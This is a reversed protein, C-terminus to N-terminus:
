LKRLLIKEIYLYIILNERLGYFEEQYNESDFNDKLEPNDTVIVQANKLKAIDNYSINKYKILYYPIPFPSNKMDFSISAEPNQTKIQEIRSLFNKLDGVTHVYIFPNRPDMAFRQTALISSNTKIHLTLVLVIFSLCKIAKNKHLIGVSFAYGFLVCMPMILSLLLWPTKYSILSLILFYIVCFSSIYNIIKERKIYGILAGLLAFITIAFEGFYVGQSKQFFLIKTYYLFEKSHIESQSKEFFHLYSAIGDVIGKPNTGFSSYLTIYVLLALAFSIGAKKALSYNLKLKSKYALIISPILLAFLVIVFTEKSSQALGCALGLAIFDGLKQRTIALYLYSMALFVFLCFFIEQVFYLSYLISLASVSWGAIAISICAFNVQSKLAFFALISLLFIPLLTKRLSSIEHNPSRFLSETKKIFYAWYYLIGGHAGEPSYKYSNTQYLKIYCLAQEGEDAHAVRRESCDLRLEVAFISIALILFVAFAKYM